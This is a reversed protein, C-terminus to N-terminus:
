RPQNSQYDTVNRLEALFFFFFDNFIKYLTVYFGWEELRNELQECGDTELSGPRPM